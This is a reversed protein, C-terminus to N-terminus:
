SGGEDDLSATLYLSSTVPNPNAFATINDPYTARGWPTVIARTRPREADISISHSRLLQLFQSWRGRVKSPVLVDGHVNRKLFIDADKGLVSFFIEAPKLFGFEVEADSERSHVEIQRKDPRFVLRFENNLIAFQSDMTRQERSTRFTVSQVIGEDDEVAVFNRNAPAIYFPYVIDSGISSETGQYAEYYLAAYKQASMAAEIFFLECIWSLTDNDLGATLRPSVMARIRCLGTYVEISGASNLSKTELQEFMNIVHDGKLQQDDLSLLTNRRDSSRESIKQKQLLRAAANLLLTESPRANFLENHSKDKLTRDLEERVLTIFRRLYSAWIYCISFAESYLKATLLCTTNEDFLIYDRTM